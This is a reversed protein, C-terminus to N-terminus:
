CYSGYIISVRDHYIFLFKNVDLEYESARDLFILCVKLPISVALQCVNDPNIQKM